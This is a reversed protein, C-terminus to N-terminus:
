RISITISAREEGRSWTLIYTGPTIHDPIVFRDSNEQAEFITQGLIDSLVIQGASPILVVNRLPDFIIAPSVVSEEVDLICLEFHTCIVRALFEDYQPNGIPWNLVAKVSRDIPAWALPLSYSGEGWLLPRMQEIHFGGGADGNFNNEYPEDSYDLGETFESDVGQIRTLDIVMATYMESSDGLFDWLINTVGEKGSRFAGGEAYFRGGNKLYDVLNVQSASDFLPEDSWENSRVFVADFSIDSPLSPLVAVEGDYHAQIATRLQQVKVEGDPAVILVKSAQASVDSIVLMLAVILTLRSM